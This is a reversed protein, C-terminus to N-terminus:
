PAATHFTLDVDVKQGFVDTPGASTLEGSIQGGAGQYNKVTLVGSLSVSGQEKLGSHVIDAGIVSGDPEIKVVMADGFNGFLADDAAKADGAQDKATFVLDTVPQGDFPDDKHTTVQTLVAAKGDVTYSGSVAPGAVPTPAAAAAAASTPAASAPAAATNAANGPAKSCAVLLTLGALGLVVNRM